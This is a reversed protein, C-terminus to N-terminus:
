MHQTGGVLLSLAPHWVCGVPPRRVLPAGAHPRHCPQQLRHGAGGGAGAGGCRQATGAGTGPALLPARPPDCLTVTVSSAAPMPLAVWGDGGCLGAALGPCCRTKQAGVPRGKCDQIEYSGGSPLNIKRVVTLEPGLEDRRYAEPGTNWQAAAPLARWLTALRLARASYIAACILAHWSPGLCASAVLLAPLPLLQLGFLAPLSALLGRGCSPVM